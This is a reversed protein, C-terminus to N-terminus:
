PPSVSSPRIGRDPSKWVARAGRRKLLTKPVAVITAASHIMWYLTPYWIMWYYFRSLAPEYRSDIALSVAFQILCTSGLIVGSWGPLMSSVIYPPDLPVILGIFWLAFIVAITYAWLTSVILELGVVWM